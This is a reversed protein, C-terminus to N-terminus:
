KTNHTQTPTHTNEERTKKRRSKLALKFKVNTQVHCPTKPPSKATLLLSSGLKQKNQKANLHLLALRVNNSAAGTISRSYFTKM